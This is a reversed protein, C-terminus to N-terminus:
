PAGGTLNPKTNFMVWYLNVTKLMDFLADFEVPKVLYWNVGVDLSPQRRATAGVLHAHCGSHTEVNRTGAAM